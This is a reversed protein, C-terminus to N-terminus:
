IGSNRSSHIPNRGALWAGSDFVRPSIRSLELGDPVCDADVPIVIRGPKAKSPAVFVVKNPFSLAEFARIDAETAQVRDDFKFFIQSIVSPLRSLRRKWTSIAEDPTEYHMFQVEINKGLSGVPWPQERSSRLHEIYPEKSYPIIRLDNHLSHPWDALINLYSSPSFFLGIFPTNYQRHAYKYIHAGWCNNSVIAFEQSGLIRNANLRQLYRKINARHLAIM